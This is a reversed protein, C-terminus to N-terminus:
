LDLVSSTAYLFVPGSLGTREVIEVAIGVYPDRFALRRAPTEATGLLAIGNRELVSVAQAFDPVAIGIRVWGQDCPRWDEPLPRQAPQTHNFFELQFFEQSGVVWWMMARCDSGLGQTRITEGWLGQGGANEFGFAESYLRLSGALDSTNLGVQVFEM